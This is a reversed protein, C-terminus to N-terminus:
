TQPNSSFPVSFVNISLQLVSRIMQNDHIQNFRSNICLYIHNITQEDILFINKGYGYCVAVGFNLLLM